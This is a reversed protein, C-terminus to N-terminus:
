SMLGNEKLKEAPDISWRGVIMAYKSKKINKKEFRGNTTSYFAIGGNKAVIFLV